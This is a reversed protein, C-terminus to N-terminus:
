FTYIFNISMNTGTKTSMFVTDGDIKKEPNGDSNDPYNGKTFKKDLNQDQYFYLTKNFIDTVNIRVVGNKVVRKSIQFDLLPKPNEYVDLVGYDPIGVYAIRRGIQNFLIAFSTETKPENFQLGFNLIYPSQGQLPRLFKDKGQNTPIEVESKIYALNTFFVLNELWEANVAKALFDFNKRFVFEVGYNTAKNSNIWTYQLSSGGVTGPNIYQEIPNKFIKNFLSLSIMQGKGFFYEYKLDLNTIQTRKLLPNGALLAFLNFDYFAFPAIERFEPRSVTRSAAARFNMKDNIAYIFNASPLFDLYSTDVKVKQSSFSYSNLRQQFNEVRLGWIIRIKKGISNDLMGYYAGLYSNGNYADSKNTIDSIVFGSSDINQNAFIQGVPLDLLNYNFNQQRAISYGLVRAAFNRDKYTQYTGFKFTQNKNSLKFPVSLDAYGTSVNEVLRSTFRGSVNLDAGFTVPMTYTSDSDDFINKSYLTRKLDPQDRITKSIGGGWTLKINKQGIVHEAKLQSSLLQNSIFDFQRSIISDQNDYRYGERLITNNDSAVNYTNKLSLKTKDGVKLSFNLLSGWNVSRNYAEDRFGIMQYITNSVTDKPLFDTRTNLSKTRDQNYTLAGVMGFDLKDKKYNTGGTLQLRTFPLANDETNMIFTNGLQRSLRLRENLPLARYKLEDPWSKPIERVGDKLGLWDRKGGTYTAWDGFTAQTNLGSGVSVSFFGSDPIERTNVQILGGAFEGPLDPQATKSIVLNDLMNSPFMEFNFVKKDPESGPLVVGNVLALNYRDALGRIVAFKGDQLTTGSVRRLVDATSRDPSKRIQDASTGDMVAINNKQLLMMGTINDQNVKATIVVEEVEVSKEEMYADVKTVKGATVIIDQITLNAYGTYTMTINYKGAAVSITYNGDLDTMAGTTTNEIRVTAGIMPENNAKDFVRGTIKGSSQGLAKYNATFSLLLIVVLSFFTFKLKM